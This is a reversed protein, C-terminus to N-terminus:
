EIVEDALALLTAPLAPVTLGLLKATQMNIVLEFQTPQMVPLDAPNAGKLIRGGRGTPTRGNHQNRLEDPRRGLCTRSFRVDRARCPAGCTQYIPISPQPLIPRGGGAPEHLAAFIATSDNV